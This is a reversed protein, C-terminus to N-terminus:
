TGIDAPTAGSVELLRNPDAPFLADHAGAAAYIVPWRLLSTDMLTRISSAHGIPPVGGIAYGTVARVDDASAMRVDVAGVINAVAVTNVRRDGACIVLLPEGDAKFLLSKAIAGVECGVAQAAESATRTSNPLRVVRSELGCADLAQQVREPGSAM